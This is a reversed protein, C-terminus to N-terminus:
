QPKQHQWHAEIQELTRGKTEPLRRWLLGLGIVTIAAFMLFTGPQSIEQLIPFALLCLFEALWLILTCISAARGRVRTPFIESIILWACPGIGIAYSTTAFLAIILVVYPPFVRFQFEAAFLLLSIIVGISSLMLLPKRGIKDIIFITLITSAFLIVGVIVMGLMASAESQFGLEMLFKPCYFTIAQLGTFQSYIMILAGVIMPARFPPHALQALSVDEKNLADKIEQIEREAHEAGGVRALIDRAKLCLSFFM